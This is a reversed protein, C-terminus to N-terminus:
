TQIIRGSARFHLSVLKLKVVAAFHRKDKRKKEEDEKGSNELNMKVTVWLM